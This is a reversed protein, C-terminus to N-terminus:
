EVDRAAAVSRPMTASSCFFRAAARFYDENTAYETCSAYAPRLLCVADLYYQRCIGDGAQQRCEVFSTVPSCGACAADYCASSAQVKAGCGSASVDGDTLAICGPTNSKWLTGSRIIPGYSAASEDTFLCDLCLANSADNRFTACSDSTASASECSQYQLDIQVASCADPRRALPPKWEPAWRAPLHPSCAAAADVPEPSATEADGCAGLFALFLAKGAVLKKWSRARMARDLWVLEGACVLAPM